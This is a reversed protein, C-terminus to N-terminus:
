SIKTYYQGVLRRIAFVLGGFLYWYYQSVGWYNMSYVAYMVFVALLTQNLRFTFTNRRLQLRRIAYRVDVLSRYISILMYIFVCAGIAGLEIMLQAYLNHSAKAHGFNHYKAEATTGVGHGFVPRALGLELEQISGRVRGESSAENATSSMGVLSLYRDQQIPTMILWAGICLGIVASILLIKQSSERIIVFAVALMALFAGRSMTLVLAYLLLPMFIFYLVRGIIRHPRLLYHVFPFVTAIVFGLENSNIVDAPAGALRGTMAGDGIYTESGWYGTTIHLYLPELVRFLQTAVFVLLCGVLRKPTDVIFATFYFFVVAKVFVELNTRLVSGPFEVFPLSILVYAVLLNV